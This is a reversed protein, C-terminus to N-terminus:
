GLNIMWNVCKRGDLHKKVRTLVLTLVTLCLSVSAKQHPKFFFAEIVTILICTVLRSCQATLLSLRTCVLPKHAAAKAGFLWTEQLIFNKKLSQKTTKSGWAARGLSGGNRDNLFVDILISWLPVLFIIILIFFNM